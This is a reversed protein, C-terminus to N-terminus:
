PSNSPSVLWPNTAVIEAHGWSSITGDLIRVLTPYALTLQKASIDDFSGRPFTMLLGPNFVVVM